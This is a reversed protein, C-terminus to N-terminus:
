FLLQLDVFTEKVHGYIGSTSFILSLESNVKEMLGFVYKPYMYYCM